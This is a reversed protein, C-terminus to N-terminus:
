GVIIKKFEAVKQLLDDKESESVVNVFDYDVKNRKRRCRDFYRILSKTEEGLIIEVVDFTTKHHGSRSTVRYGNRRIVYTALNLAASYATAFQRDVSLGRVSADQLDRAAVSLLDALTQPTAEVEQLLGKDLYLKLSMM